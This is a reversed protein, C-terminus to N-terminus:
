GIPSIEAEKSAEDLAAQQQAALEARRAELDAKYEQYAEVGIPIMLEGELGNWEVFIDFYGAETKTTVKFGETMEAMMSDEYIIRVLLDEETFQYYPDDVGDGLYQPMLSVPKGGFESKKLSGGCGTLATLFLVALVVCLVKKMM